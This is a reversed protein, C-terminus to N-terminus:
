PDITVSGELGIVQVTLTQGSVMPMGQAVVHTTDAYTVTIGSGVSLTGEPLSGEFDELPADIPMGLASGQADGNLIVPQNGMTMGGATPVTVETGIGGSTLVINSLGLQALSCSQPPVDQFTMTDVIFYSDTGGGTDVLCATGGTVVLTIDLECSILGSVTVTTDLEPNGQVTTFSM